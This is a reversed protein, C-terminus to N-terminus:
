APLKELVKAAQICVDEDYDTKEIIDLILKKSKLYRVAAECIEMCYDSKKVLVMIQRTSKKRLKLFNIGKRCTSEDHDSKIMVELTLEESRPIELIERCLEVLTSGIFKKMLELVEKESKLFKSGALCVYRNHNTRTMIALNEIESLKKFNLRRAGNRCTESDYNNKEMVALINGNSKLFSIGERYVKIHDAKGMIALVQRESNAFNILKLALDTEM